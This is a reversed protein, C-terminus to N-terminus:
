RGGRARKARTGEFTVAVSPRLIDQGCYETRKCMGGPSPFLNLEYISRTDTYPEFDRDHTNLCTNCIRHKRFILSTKVTQKEKCIFCLM